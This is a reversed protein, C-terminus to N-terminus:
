GGTIAITLREDRVAEIAPMAAEEGPKLYPHPLQYVRWRYYVHGFKEFRLRSASQPYIAGGLERQRGYVVTPGVQAEWSDDGTEVPGDVTISRRLDGPMNTSNGATGVPAFGMSSAQILHAADAVTDRTAGRVRLALADLAAITEEVDAM